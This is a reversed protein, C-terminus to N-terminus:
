DLQRLKLMYRLTIRLLYFRYNKFLEGAYIYQFLIIDLIEIKRKM